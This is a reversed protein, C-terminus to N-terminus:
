EKIKNRILKRLVITYANGRTNIRRMFRGIHYTIYFYLFIAIPILSMILIIDKM